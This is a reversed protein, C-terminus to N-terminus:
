LSIEVYGGGECKHDGVTPLKIPRAPRDVIAAQEEDVISFGHNPNVEVAVMEDQLHGSRAGVHLLRENQQLALM